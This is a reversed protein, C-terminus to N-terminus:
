NMVVNIPELTIGYGHCYCQMWKIKHIDKMGPYLYKTDMIFIFSSLNYEWFFTIKCRYNVQMKQLVAAVM